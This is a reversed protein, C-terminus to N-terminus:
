VGLLVNSSGHRAGHQWQPEHNRLDSRCSASGGTTRPRCVSRNPGTKRSGWRSPLTPSICARAAYPRGASNRPRRGGHHNACSRAVLNRNNCGQDLREGTMALCILGRAYTAMFNIVEPTVMEAAIVLDGENERDEDDAIVIMRGSRLESLAEEIEAFKGAEAVACHKHSGAMRAVDPSILPDIVSLQQNSM